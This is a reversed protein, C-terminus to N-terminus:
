VSADKDEKGIKVSMLGDSKCHPCTDLIFGDKDVVMRSEGGCFGCELMPLDSQKQVYEILSHLDARFNARAAETKDQGIPEHYFIFQEIPNLEREQVATEYVEEYAPIHINM